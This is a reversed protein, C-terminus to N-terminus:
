PLSKFMIIADEQNNAYYGRRRGCDVFGLRQYLARAAENSPRVELTFSAIGEQRGADLLAALLTRGIGRGRCDPDVAINHIEAEGLIFWSSIYGRVVGDPAVAVLVRAKNADALEEALAEFSWPIAFCRQELAALAPLDAGSAPRVVIREAGMCAAPSGIAGAEYADAAQSGIAGAENAAAAQSGIAGAEDAEAAKSGIARRSPIDNEPSM